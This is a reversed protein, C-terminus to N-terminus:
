QKVAKVVFMPTSLFNTQEQLTWVERWADAASSVRMGLGELIEADWGPRSIKSLPMNRAIDEMVDFNEGVNQDDMGLAESNARDSEYAERKSDDFLYHYWNSDFNLLLGGDKLVRNWERYAIEPHPLNWTLNRSVVVDYASDDIDLGEADAIRFVLSGAKAGTEADSISGLYNQANQRAENLMEPVMDVATVCYGLESLIIAIFGPGAGVDLIKISSPECGPYHESILRSLVTKWRSRSEGALEWKNVDSYGAARQSWYEYNDRVIGKEETM